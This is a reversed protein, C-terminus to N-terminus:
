ALAAPGHECPGKGPRLSNVAFDFRTKLDALDSPERAKESCQRYVMEVHRSIAKKQEDDRLQSAIAAMVELMRVSVAVSESGFQRIQNFAADALGAFTTPRVVIRLRGELDYRCPGPLGHRAVACISTGLWDICNVATFPDNIGPSLARVAIEVLQRISYEIDQEATRQRGLYFLARLSERLPEDDDALPRTRLLASGDIVYDGPRCALHVVLDNRRAIEMLGEENIAQLYGSRRALVVGADQGNMQRPQADDSTAAHPGMGAGAPFPRSVARELEIGVTAVVQPGQLARSVHDIFYILVVISGVAMLVAVTISLNPVFSDDNLGRVSRLVLLCYIFTAVFTGLVVQNGTDRIFNRLLRPGFQSSAQTLTAITISFVVGAVTIVSGAVTSLLSRAGSPGGTYIWDSASPAAWHHDIQLTAFALAVALLLMAAPVFWFSSSLSDWLHSIRTKM